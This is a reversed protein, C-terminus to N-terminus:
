CSEFTTTRQSAHYDSACVMGVVRMVRWYMWGISGDSFRLENNQHFYRVRDAFMTAPETM